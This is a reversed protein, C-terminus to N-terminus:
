KTPLKLIETIETLSNVTYTSPIEASGKQSKRNIWCTDIGSNLGGKIDTNLSDGIILADENQFDKIHDSVYWFFERSPKQYGISQSDFVDEFYESLGSQKLRRHQTETIGNTIVFLRHTNSLNRCLEMSGDILQYGNSLFERYMNDWEVGDVIIGLKLMTRSFRTYLVESLPILGNEYDAWLSNNVTSYIDFLEDTLEYGQLCFLKNLSESENAGFDMLTDDLDFLLIKYKM